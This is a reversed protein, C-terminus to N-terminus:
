RVEATTAAPVVAVQYSEIVPNALLQDCMREAEAQADAESAAAIELSILKGARVSKIGGYGLQELGGRISEGAPDNVGVKPLITVNALWVANSTSDSV